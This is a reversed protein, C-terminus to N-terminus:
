SQYGGDGHHDDGSRGRHRAATQGARLAVNWGRNIRATVAAAAPALPKGIRHLLVAIRHGVVHLLVIIDILARGIGTRTVQRRIRDIPFARYGAQLGITMAPMVRRVMAPAVTMALLHQAAVVSRQILSLAGTRM